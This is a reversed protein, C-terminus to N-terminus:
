TATNGGDIALMAGTMYSSEASALFLVAKAIEEARAVRGLPVQDGLYKLGQEQTMGRKAIGSALMPTDVDGPCVCNVRINDEAHDVAMARTMQVVAGKSACYAFANRGGVLGWDSAINVITGGGQERMRRVAARSLRFVATMNVAVIDDWEVDSCDAVTGRYIIGANNILVDLRGCRRTTEAVIEDPWRPESLNGALFEVPAGLAQVRKLVANGREASRGTLMLTAGAAACAEAIAAGIGSTAGTVLVTKGNLQM